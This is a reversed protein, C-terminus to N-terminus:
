QTCSRSVMLASQLYLANWIRQVAARRLMTDALLEDLSVPAAKMRQILRKTTGDVPLGFLPTGLAVRCRVPGAIEPLLASNSGRLALHWM